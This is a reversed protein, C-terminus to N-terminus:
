MQWNKLSINVVKLFTSWKEELILIKSKAAIDRYFDDIGRTVKRDPHEASMFRLVHGLRMDEAHITRKTAINQSLPQLTAIVVHFAYDQGLGAQMQPLSICGPLVM